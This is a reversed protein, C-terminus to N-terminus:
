QSPTAAGLRGALPTIGGALHPALEGPPPVPSVLGLGPSRRLYRVVVESIVMLRHLEQSM